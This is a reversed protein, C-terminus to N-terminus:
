SIRTTTQHLSSFGSFFGDLRYFPTKVNQWSPKRLLILLDILFEGAVTRCIFGWDGTRKRKAYSRGLGFAARRVQVAQRHRGQPDFLHALRLQGCIALRWRRGVEMSFDRDEVVALEDYRLGEVASRRFIQCFGPLWKVERCGEFPPLFSLPISRGLHDADGPELSRTLGLRQRLRWRPPVPQGYNATDYGTLGGLDTMEPRGFCAAATALFDPALVVDDDLFCILEGGAAELGVNRARALGKPATLRRLSYRRRDPPSGAEAEAGQKGVISVEFDDYSQADLSDLLKAILDERRITCIIISIKM